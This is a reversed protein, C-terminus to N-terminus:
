ATRTIHTSEEAARRLSAWVLGARTEVGGRVLILRGAGYRSAFWQAADTRLHVEATPSAVDRALLELLGLAQADGLPGGEGGPTATSALILKTTPDVIAVLDCGSIEAAIERCLQSLEQEPAFAFHRRPAGDRGGRGNGARSARSVRAMDVALAAYPSLEELTFGHRAAEPEPAGPVFLAEARPLALLSRTRRGVWTRALRRLQEENALGWEAVVEAPDLGRRRSEELVTTLEDSSLRGVRALIEAVSDPTTGTAAWTIKGARVRISGTVDRVRCRVVIEGDGKEMAEGLAAVVSMALPGPAALSREGTRVRAVLDAPELPKTAFDDAGAALGKILDERATLSTVIIVYHEDGALGKKVRRSIELGDLAGPLMWDVVLIAPGELEKVLELGREGDEAALVRFGAETLASAFIRRTVPDDEILLVAPAPAALM